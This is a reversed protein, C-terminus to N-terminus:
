KFPAIANALVQDLPAGGEVEKIWSVNLRTLILGLAAGTGYLRWRMLRWTPDMGQPFKDIPRELQAITSDRVTSQVPRKEAAAFAYLGVIEATGEKREMLREIEEVRENVLSLRARRARLYDRALARASETSPALLIDRLLGREVEVNRLFSSDKVLSDEITDNRGFLNEFSSQQYKHFTEHIGFEIAWAASGISRVAEVERGGADFTSSLTSTNGAFTRVTARFVRGRM